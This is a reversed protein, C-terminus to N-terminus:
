YTVVMLNTVTLAGLTLHAPVVPVAFYLPSFRDNYSVLFSYRSLINSVYQTNHLRTCLVHFGIIFLSIRRIGIVVHRSWSGM